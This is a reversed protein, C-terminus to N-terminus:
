LNSLKKFAAKPDKNGFIYKASVLINAGALKCLKGIKLNIGGDVEIKVDPMKERLAKIKKLQDKRFLQGAPGPSVALILVRSLWSYGLLKEVPTNPNVALALEAGAEDCATKMKQINKASELHVILRKVGTKLWDSLAKDPKNVMLHVEMNVTKAIGSKTLEKPNNWLIAKSFKGDTVDLHVWNAGFEKAENVLEKLEEFDTTNISPITQM